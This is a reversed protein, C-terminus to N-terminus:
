IKKSIRISTPQALLDQVFYKILRPPDGIEHLVFFSITKELDEASASYLDIALITHSTRHTLHSRPSKPTSSSAGIGKMHSLSAAICM